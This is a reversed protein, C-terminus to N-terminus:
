DISAGQEKPPHLNAGYKYATSILLMAGVQEVTNPYPVLNM